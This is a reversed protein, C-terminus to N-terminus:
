ELTLRGKSNGYQITKLFRNVIIYLLTSIVSVISINVLREIAIKPFVGDQLLSGLVLLLIYYFFISLFIGVYQMKGESPIVISLLDLFMLLASIVLIHTGLSFHNVSDLIVGFLTIFTYFVIPNVRKWILLLVLVFLSFFFLDFLFSELFLLVFLSITILLIKIM